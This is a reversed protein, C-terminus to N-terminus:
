SGGVDLPFQPRIFSLNETQLNLTKILLGSVLSYLNTEGNQVVMFYNKDFDFGNLSDFEVEKNKSFDDTNIFTAKNSSLVVILAGENKAQYIFSTGKGTPFADRNSLDDANFSTVDDTKTNIVYMHEQTHDLLMATNSYKAVYISYGYNLGVAAVAVSGLFQGFKVGARGTGSRNIVKGSQSNIVAVESGKGERVYFRNKDPNWYSDAIDFPSDMIVIKDTNNPDLMLVEGNGFVFIENTGDHLRICIPKLKVEPISVNMLQNEKFEYVTLLRSDKSQGFIYFREYKEDRFYVPTGTFYGDIKTKRKTNLDVIETRYSKGKNTKVFLSNFLNNSFYHPLKRNKNLNVETIQELTHADFVISKGKSSNTNIIYQDDYTLESYSNGKGLSISKKLKGTKNDYVSLFKEKKKETQIYLNSFDKNVTIFQRVELEYRYVSLPDINLNFLLKYTNIDYVKIVASDKATEMYYFLKGPDILNLSEGPRNYSEGFDIELKQDLNELNFIKATNNFVKKNKTQYFALYDQSIATSSILSIFLCLIKM